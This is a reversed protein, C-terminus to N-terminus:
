YYLPEFELKLDDEGSKRIVVQGTWKEETKPFDLRNHFLGFRSEERYLATRTMIRSMAYINKSESVRMLGHYDGATLRPVFERLADLKKLAVEMGIGTRQAAMHDSMIRQLVAEFEKYTIEGKEMLPRYVENKIRGIEADSPSVMRTSGAHRAAEHGAAYGSTCAMSVCSFQDACDGAAYLGPVSSACEKDVKIGSGCFESPGKQMFESVMVEVPTKAIDIGKQEFFDPLTDKDYGLTAKLHAMEKEALHRTEIFVPGRGERIENMVAEVLKYRPANNGMPHYRNMFQEGLSNIMYCGMGMFANLGASSFGKPVVTVRLYETNALRAGAGLALIQGDGTNSPCQWGNFTSGAQSQYLRNTNGTAIVVARAKIAYFEGTRIHFATAGAVHTGDMLLGNTVTRDLVNCRLRRVEKGLLPKLRKGNFNIFYPGPQGLSKTRYFKGTDPQTLPNGIRAFRDICDRLGRCFVAETINLDIAGRAIRGAYELYADATDWSEGTELFAMFHDVGGAIDGSREIRGKDLVVVRAGNEAAGMAANCGALGGGIVLVDADVRTTTPLNQSM